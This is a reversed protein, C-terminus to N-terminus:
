SANCLKPLQRRCTLAPLQAPMMRFMCRRQEAIHALLRGHCCDAGATPPRVMHLLYHRNLGMVRSGTRGGGNDLLLSFDDITWNFTILEAVPSHSVHSRM